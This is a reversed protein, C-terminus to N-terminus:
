LSCDCIGHTSWDWFWHSLMQFSFTKKESTKSASKMAPVRPLIAPTLHPLYHMM